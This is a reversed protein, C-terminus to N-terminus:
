WASSPTASRNSGLPKLEVATGPAALGVVVGAAVAALVALYLWHTKDRARAAAAKAIAM